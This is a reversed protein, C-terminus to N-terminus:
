KLGANSYFQRKYYFTAPTGTYFLSYGPKKVLLAFIEPFLSFTKCTLYTNYETCM